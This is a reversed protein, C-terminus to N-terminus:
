EQPWKILPAIDILADISDTFDELVGEVDDFQLEKLHTELFGAHKSLEIAGTYKSGGHLRHVVHILKALDKEEFHHLILKKDAELTNLLMDFMDKAIVSKGNAISLAKDIDFLAVVKEDALDQYSKKSQCWQTITELLIDENVPKTLYANMGSSVIQKQESGLAHATLAVIPTHVYNTLKRLRQTAEMGDMEPMQIDMLILDYQTEKAMEIAQKGSYALDVQLGHPELWHGLLQLNIQTDDVALIQIGSLPSTEEPPEVAELELETTLETTTTEDAYLRDESLLKPEELSRLSKNLRNHSIPTMLIESCLTHLISSKSIDHPRKTLLICPLRFQQTIYAVLEQIEELKETHSDINLLVADLSTQSNLLTVTQELSSTFTCNAGVHNLYTKLYNRYNLSPEFVLLSKSIPEEVKQEKQSPKLVITFRFNSGIGHESSVEVNGGMQKVLKKTIVLGLGTGGFKRTTSTDVQSFPKFLNDLKNEPIGVGTDIIQFSLKLSSNSKELIKVTTRVSGEHTFKIANGILNTLVQRIRVPDGIVWTPVDLDFEPILDLEKSANVLNASSLIQYVEDVIDRINIDTLDLSLKGAEIKSFDLIDSIITLLNTTSQAITDMYLRQQKDLQDKQLIQIYGMIANLPTRIEHSINALFQSKLRNSETAEKNAIHLQASKEELSDMNRRIDETAQDVNSLIEARHNELRSSIDNLDSVVTSYQTPLNLGKTAGFHGQTIKNVTDSIKEIPRLLSATVNLLAFIALLNFIFFTGLTASLYRYKSVISAEKSAEVKLWGSVQPVSYSSTIFNTNSQHELRTVPHKIPAITAFFHPNEDSENANTFPLTNVESTKGLETILKEEANYLQVTNIHDHKLLTRLTDNLMGEDSHSLAHEASVTMQSVSKEVGEKFNRDITDFRSLTFAFSAIISLILCPTYIAFFLKSRLSVSNLALM